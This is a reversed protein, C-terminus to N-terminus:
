GGFLPLRGFGEKCKKCWWRHSDKDIMCGGMVYCDPGARYLERYELSVHGYIIPIVEDCQECTPCPPKPQQRLEDLWEEHREKQRNKEVQKVEASILATMRVYDALSMTGLELWEIVDDLRLRKMAADRLARAQEDTIPDSLLRMLRELRPAIWKDTIFLTAPKNCTALMLHLAHEVPIGGVINECAYVSERDDSM